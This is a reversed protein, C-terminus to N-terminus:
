EGGLFTFKEALREGEAGAKGGAKLLMEARKQDVFEKRVAEMQKFPDMPYETPSSSSAVAHATQTSLTKEFNHAVPYPKAFLNDRRIHM